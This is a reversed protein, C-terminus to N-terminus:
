VDGHCFMAVGVANRLACWAGRAMDINLVTDDEGTAM